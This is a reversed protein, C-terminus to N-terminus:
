PQFGLNGLGYQGYLPGAAGPVNSGFWAAIWGNLPM